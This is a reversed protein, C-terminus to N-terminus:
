RRSGSTRIQRTRSESFSEISDGVPPEREARWPSGAWAPLSDHRRHFAEERRLSGQLKANRWMRLRYRVHADVIQYAQSVSALSFYNAWGSVVRNLDTVVEAVPRSTSRRDTSETVNECIRKGRKDSPCVGLYPRGTRSSWLRGSTYGLLDFGEKPVECVRTKTENVTLKLRTMMECM